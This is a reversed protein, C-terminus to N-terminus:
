NRRRCSIEAALTEAYGLWDKKVLYRKSLVVRYWGAGRALEERADLNANRIADVLQAAAWEAHAKADMEDQAIFVQQYEERGLRRVLESPPEYMHVRFARLTEMAKEPLM